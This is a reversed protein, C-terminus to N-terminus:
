TNKIANKDCSILILKILLINQTVILINTLNLSKYIIYIFPVYSIVHNNDWQRDIKLLLFVLRLKNKM